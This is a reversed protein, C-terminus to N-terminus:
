LTKPTVLNKRSLYRFRMYAEPEQANGFFLSSNYLVKQEITSSLLSNVSM